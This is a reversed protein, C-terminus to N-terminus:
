EEESLRPLGLLVRKEAPTLFDAAGVRAWQQDREAALATVTFTHSVGPATTSPFGTVTLHSAAAPSVTVAQTGTISGTATDMATLSQSGATKLTAAFTHTGSDAGTFTYDGPLTAMADTSTFHVAGAFGPVPNNSADLATVTFSHSTGATTPNSFGTVSFHTAAPATVTLVAANSTSAQSTGNLTNTVQVAYSGVEELAVLILTLTPMLAFEIVLILPKAFGEPYALFAGAHVAGVVGIGIFALPGAVLLWLAGLWIGM